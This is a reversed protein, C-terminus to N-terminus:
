KPKSKKWAKATSYLKLNPANWIHIAAIHIIQKRQPKMGNKMKKSARSLSRWLLSGSAKHGAHVM